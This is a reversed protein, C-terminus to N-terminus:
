HAAKLINSLLDYLSVSVSNTMVLDAKEKFYGWRTEEEVDDQDESQDM